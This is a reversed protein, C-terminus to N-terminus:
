HYYMVMILIAYLIIKLTETAANEAFHLHWKIIPIVSILIYITTSSIKTSICTSLTTCLRPFAVCYLEQFLKLISCLALTM